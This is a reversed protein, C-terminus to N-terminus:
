VARTRVRIRLPVYLHGLAKVKRVLDAVDSNENVPPNSGQSLMVRDDQTPGVPHQEFMRTLKRVHPLLCWTCGRLSGLLITIPGGTYRQTEIAPGLMASLRPVLVWLSEGCPAGSDLCLPKTLGTRTHKEPTLANPPSPTMTIKLADQVRAPVLHLVRLLSALGQGGSETVCVHVADQWIKKLNAAATQHRKPLHDLEMGLAKQIIVAFTSSCVTEQLAMQGAITSGWACPDVAHALEGTHKNGLLDGTPKPGVRLGCSQLVVLLLWEGLKAYEQASAKTPLILCAAGSRPHDPANRFPVACHLLSSGFYLAAHEGYM